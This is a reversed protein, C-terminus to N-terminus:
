NFTAMGGGSVVMVVILLVAGFSKWTKAAAKEWWKALAVCGMPVFAAFIMYYYGNLRGGAYVFLAACLAM